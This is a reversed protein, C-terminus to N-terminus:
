PSNFDSSSWPRRWIGQWALAPSGLSTLRLAFFTHFLLACASPGPRQSHPKAIDIFMTFLCKSLFLPPFRCPIDSSKTHIFPVTEGWVRVWVIGTVDLIGMPNYYNIDVLALISQRKIYEARRRMAM